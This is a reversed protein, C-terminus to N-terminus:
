RAVQLLELLTITFSVITLPAYFDTLESRVRKVAGDAYARHRRM